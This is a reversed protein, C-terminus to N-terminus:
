TGCMSFRSKCNNVSWGSHEVEMEVEVVRRKTRAEALVGEHSPRAKSELLCIRYTLGAESRLLCVHFRYNLLCGIPFKSVFPWRM